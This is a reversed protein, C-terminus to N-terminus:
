TLCIVANEVVPVNARVRVGYLNVDMSSYVPQYNINTIGPTEPDIISHENLLHMYRRALLRMPAIVETEMDAAKYDVTLNSSKNLFFAEFPFTTKILGSKGIVDDTTIPLILIVPLESNTLKDTETANAENLDAYILTNLGALSDKVEELAELITM